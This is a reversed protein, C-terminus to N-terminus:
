NTMKLTKKLHHVLEAVTKEKKNETWQMKCDKWGLGLEHTKINNKIHCMKNTKTTLRAVEVDIEEETKWRAVSHCM